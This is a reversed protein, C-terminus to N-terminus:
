FTWRNNVTAILVWEGNSNKEFVINLRQCDMEKATLKPLKGSAKM